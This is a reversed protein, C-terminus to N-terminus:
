ALTRAMRFKPSLEDFGNTAPSKRFFERRTLSRPCKMPAELWAPRRSLEDNCRIGAPASGKCRMFIHSVLAQPCPRSENCTSSSRQVTLTPPAIFRVDQPVRRRFRGLMAAFSDRPNPGDTRRLAGDHWGLFM